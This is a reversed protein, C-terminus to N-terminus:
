ERYRAFITACNNGGFAFANNLVAEVEAERMTNPVYDLPCDEDPVTYNITPPLKDAGISMVSAAAELASAAGMAHGLMSKISFVPTSMAAAGFVELIGQSETKDNAPTGTGHACVASIQGPELGSDRLANRMVATVGHAKPNTMHSADCSLGYGRMEALIPAGRELASERSELVLMAAGEGVVLGKREKDFPRCCDPDLSWLRGFGTFAMHSFADAGGALAISTRGLRVQECAYSLAYNGSACATPIVMCQGALGLARMVNVAVVPAMARRVEAPTPTGGDSLVRCFREQEQCEGITAGVHVMPTRSRLDELSLGADEAAMLVSAIAYQSTLGYDGHHPPTFASFDFNTIESGIHTRHGETSFGKVQGVTNRGALLSSWFEQKGIGAASVVGIGTVVVRNM